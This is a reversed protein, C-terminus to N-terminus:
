DMMMMEDMKMKDKDEDMKMKEEEEDEDKLADSYTITVCIFYAFFTIIIIAFLLGYFVHVKTTTSVEGGIEKKGQVVKQHEYFRIFYIANWAALLVASVIILICAWTM